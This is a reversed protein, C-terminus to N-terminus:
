GDAMEGNVSQTHEATWQDLWQVCYAETYLEAPPSSSSNLRLFERWLRPNVSSCPEDRPQIVYWTIPRVDKEM